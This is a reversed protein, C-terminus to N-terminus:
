ISDRFSYLETAKETLKEKRLRENNNDSDGQINKNRTEWLINAGWIYGDVYKTKQPDDQSSTAVYTNEYLQIYEESLKGMFLHRWGIKHQTNIARQYKRPFKKVDVFGTDM